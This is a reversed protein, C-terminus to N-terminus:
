EDRGRQVTPLAVIMLLMAAILPLEGFLLVDFLTGATSASVFTAVVAAIVLRAPERLVTTV